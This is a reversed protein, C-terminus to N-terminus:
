RKKAPITLKQGAQISDAKKSSLNNAKCLEQVTVGYRKAITSLSEGRSITHTKSKTSSSNGKSSSKTAGAASPIVLRKGPRIKSAEKAPINNAALIDQVTVGNKKAIRAISEGRAVVHTKAKTGTGPKYGKPTYRVKIIQGPHIVNGSINSDRRIQAITTNSRAAIESLSDGPRVKYTVLTPEQPKIGKKGQQKKGGKKTNAAIKTSTQKKTSAKKTPAAATATAAPNKKIITTRAETKSVQEAPVAAIAPQNHLLPDIVNVEEPIEPTEVAIDDDQIGAVVPQNQNASGSAGSDAVTAEPDPIAYQNRVDPTYDGADVQTSGDDELLWPPIEGDAVSMESMPTAEEWEGYGDGDTSQCSSMLALVCASLGITAFTKKM